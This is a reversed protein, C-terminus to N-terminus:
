FLPRPSMGPVLVTFVVRGLYRDLWDAIERQDIPVILDSVSALQLATSLARALEADLVRVKADGLARMAERTPLAKRLKGGEVHEVEGLLLSPAGMVRRRQEETAQGRRVAVLDDESVGGDIALLLITSRM